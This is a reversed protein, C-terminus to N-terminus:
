VRRFSSYTGNHRNSASYLWRTNLTNRSLHHPNLPLHSTTTMVITDVAGWVWSWEDIRRGARNRDGAEVFMPWARCVEDGDSGPRSWWDAASRRGDMGSSRRATSPARPTPFDPAFNQRPYYSPCYACDGNTSQVEKTKYVKGILELFKLFTITITPTLSSSPLPLCRNTYRMTTLVEGRIREPTSWVTNVALV